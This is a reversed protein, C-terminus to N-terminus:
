ATSGAGQAPTAGADAPCHCLKAVARRTAEQATRVQRQWVLYEIRIIADVDAELAALDACGYAEAIAVLRAVTRTHERSRHPAPTM